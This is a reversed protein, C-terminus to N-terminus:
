LDIAPDFIIGARLMDLLPCAHQVHLIFSKM